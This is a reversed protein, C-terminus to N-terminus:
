KPDSGKRQRRRSLKRFKPATVDRLMRTDRTIWEEAIQAGRWAGLNYFDAARPSEPYKLGAFAASGKMAPNMGLDAAAGMIEEGSADLLEQELAELLRHLSVEPRMAKMQKRM